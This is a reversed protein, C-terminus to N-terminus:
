SSQRKPPKGHHLLADIHQPSVTRNKQIHRRKSLTSPMKVFAVWLAKCYAGFGGHKLSGLGMRLLWILMAPKYKWFLSGPMNKCYLYVFNKVSHYRTFTGLKSTTASVRHYAVAKPEYWVSIGALQARFSIDDDEFYAFFDEDFLGIKKFLSMRYLSAGGTGAFVHQGTEYQGKDIEGRGIPFPMGWTSYAAGVSDIHKKDDRLLKGTVIGAEPHQNAAAVLGKLWNRDAVADNNFLAILESGNEIATEIGRNVGGAFGYNRDLRVIEVNPFKQELIDVSKDESGNDVVVLHAPQTQSELSELCEALFEEGNWNPVVVAVNTKM